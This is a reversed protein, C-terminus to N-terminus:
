TCQHGCWDSVMSFTYPLTPPLQLFALRILSLIPFCTQKSFGLCRLGVLGQTSDVSFVSLFSQFLPSLLM